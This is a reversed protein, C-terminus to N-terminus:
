EMAITGGMSSGVVHARPIKLERLIGAADDAMQGTTYVPEAPLDTEGVGRNDLTVVTFHPALAKVQLTWGVAPASLGNIFLVPDGKGTVEYHMRIKNVITFPM